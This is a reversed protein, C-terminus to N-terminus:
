RREGVARHDTFSGFCVVGTALELSPADRVADNTWERFAAVTFGFLLGAAVALAMLSLRWPYVPEPSAAPATLVTIPQIDLAHDASAANYRKLSTLYNQEIRRRREELEALLSASAELGGTTHGALAATQQARTLEEEARALSERLRETELATPAKPRSSQRVQVRRTQYRELLTEQVKVALAADPMRLRLVMVGTNERPEVELHSELFALARDRDNLRPRLDLATLGDSYVGRVWAFGHRAALRMQDLLGEAPGGTSNFVQPGVTDVVEGLLQRSGLIQVESAPHGADDRDRPVVIAARAEYEEIIVSQTVYAKLVTLVLVSVIVLRQRHLAKSV